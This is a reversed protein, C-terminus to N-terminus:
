DLSKLDKMQTTYAVIYNKDPSNILEVTHMVNFIVNGDSDKKKLGFEKKIKSFSSKLNGMLDKTLYIGRGLKWQVIVFNGIVSGFHVSVGDYGELTFRGQLGKLVYVPQGKYQFTGEKINESMIKEMLAMMEMRSVTDKAEFYSQGWASLSFSIIIITSLLQKM